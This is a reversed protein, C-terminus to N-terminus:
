RGFHGCPATLKLDEAAWPTLTKTTGDVFEITITGSLLITVGYVPKDFHRYANCLINSHSVVNRITM